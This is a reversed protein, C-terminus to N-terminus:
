PTSQSAKCLGLKPWPHFLGERQQHTLFEERCKPDQAEQETLLGVNSALEFFGDSPKDKDEGAKNVICYTALFGFDACSRLALYRLFENIPAEARSIYYNAPTKVTSGDPMIIETGKAWTTYPLKCNRIAADAICYGLEQLANANQPVYKYNPMEADIIRQAKAQAAKKMEPTIYIM